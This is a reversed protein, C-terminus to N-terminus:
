IWKKFKFFALMFVTGATMIGVIIWFDGRMGVFPLSSTNMGFISALLTLPFVIVSFVTLLKIIENTRNTLLSQNTSDLASLTKRNNKLISSIQNQQSVLNNFYPILGSKFFKKAEKPLDKLVWDQSNVTRQFGIIDRTVLSIQNVTERYRGKYIDGEIEELNQKIHSLKPFCATLIENIILYLLKGVGEKTYEKKVDEYLNVKDFIAKLPVIDKYHSTIIYNKSVIIDLELPITQFNKKDFFPYFLVIFLYDGFNEIKPYDLPPLLEKLILPHLDFNKKLFDINKETPKKIEVWTLKKTKIIQM